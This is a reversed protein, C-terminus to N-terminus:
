FALKLDKGNLKNIRVQIEHCKEYEECDLYIQMERKLAEISQSVALKRVHVKYMAQFQRHTQKLENCTQSRLRKKVTGRAQCFSDLKAANMENEEYGKGYIVNMDYAIRWISRIINVSEDSRKLYDILERAEMLTLEKSSTTRGDSFTHVLSAKQEM